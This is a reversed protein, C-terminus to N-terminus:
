RKTRRTGSTHTGFDYAIKLCLCLGAGAGAQAAQLLRISSGVIRDASPVRTQGFSGRGRWRQCHQKIASNSPDSSKVSAVLPVALTKPLADIV